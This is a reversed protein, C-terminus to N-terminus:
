FGRLHIAGALLGAPLAILHSIDASMMQGEDTLHYASWGLRIMLFLLVSVTIWIMTNPSFDAISYGLCGYYGASPGVDRTYWLLNGRHSDTLRKLLLVGGFMLLITVVHTGLFLIVAVFSGHTFEVVGVCIAFMLASLYFHWGGSTFVISTFIRHIGGDWLLKPSHGLRQHIDDDLKGLHTRGYLGSALLALVGCVTWPLRFLLQALDM